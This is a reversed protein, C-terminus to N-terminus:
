VGFPNFGPQQFPRVGGNRGCSNLPEPLGITQQKVCRHDNRVGSPCHNCGPFNPNILITAGPVLMDTTCLEEGRQTTCRCCFQSLPAVFTSYPPLIGYYCDFFFFSVGDCRSARVFGPAFLSQPCEWSGTICHLGQFDSCATTMGLCITSFVFCSLLMVRM